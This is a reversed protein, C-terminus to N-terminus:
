PTSWRNPFPRRPWLSSSTKGCKNRFLPSCDRRCLSPTIGQAAAQALLAAMPEGEDVFIRVYGEPEALTLAQSLSALASATDGVAHLAVAQLVLYRIADGQRGMSQAAEVLREILPLAEAARGTRGDGPGPRRLRIRSCLVAPDTFDLSQAQRADLNLGLSEMQRVADQLM